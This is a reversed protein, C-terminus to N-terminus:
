IMLIKRTQTLVPCLSHNLVATFLKLTGLLLNSIGSSLWLASSTFIRGEWSLGNMKELINQQTLESFAPKM